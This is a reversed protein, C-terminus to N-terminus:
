QKSKIPNSMQLEKLWKQLFHTKLGDQELCATQVCVQELHQLNHQMIQPLKVYKQKQELKFKTMEDMLERSSIVILM